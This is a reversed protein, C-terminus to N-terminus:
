FPANLLFVISSFQKEDCKMIFIHTLSMVIFSVTLSTSSNVNMKLVCLHMWCRFLLHVQHSPNLNSLEPWTAPYSISAKLSSNIITHTLSKSIFHVLVLKESFIHFHVGPTFESIFPIFQKPCNRFLKKWELM